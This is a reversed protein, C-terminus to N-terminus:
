KVGFMKSITRKTCDAIEEDTPKRFNEICFWTIARTSIKWKLANVALIVAIVTVIIAYIVM